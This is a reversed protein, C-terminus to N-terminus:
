LTVTEAEGDGLFLTLRLEGDAIEDELLFALLRGGLWEDVEGVIFCDEEVGWYDKFGRQVDEVVACDEPQKKWVKKLPPAPYCAGNSRPYSSAPAPM